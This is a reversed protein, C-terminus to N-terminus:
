GLVIAINEVASAAIFTSKAPGLDALLVTPKLLSVHAARFFCCVISLFERAPFFQILDLRESILSVAENLALLM